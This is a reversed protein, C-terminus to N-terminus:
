VMFFVWGWAWGVGFGSLDVSLWFGVFFVVVGGFMGVRVVFFVFLGLWLFVGWFVCCFVVLGVGFVCLFWVVLGCFVWVVLFFRLGVM